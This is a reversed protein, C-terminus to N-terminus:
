PTTYPALAAVVRDEYAVGTAYPFRGNLLFAFSLDRWRAVLGAVGDISGTKGMLEGQAPTGLFRFILTGYRGSVSLMSLPAFRPQGGLDLAALLAPCTARDTPALGSGDDLHLGATPIGLKAAEQQVVAIGGATTGPGGTARSLERVLMEAATNDSVRLMSAVIDGLPASVVHALVIPKAPAAGDPGQVATVGRARLLAALVGAAHGAPDATDTPVPKWRDLGDDVELAGIPAVDAGTLYSPKWAPVSRARDYRSDDGRVGGFVATVGATRLQDALWSIPTTVPAGAFEPQAVLFTTFDPSSLVPDGGGVLWVQDAVGRVLPRDTVVSTTFRYEPGLVDLAAAAVLLKQTSAPALPVSPQHSYVVRGQADHVVLCANTNVLAADLVSGLPALTTTPASPPVSGVGPAVGGPGAAGQTAPGASHALAPEPSGGSGIALVAATIAAVLLVAAAAM